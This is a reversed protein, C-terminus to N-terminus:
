PEATARAGTQGRPDEVKLLGAFGAGSFVLGAAFTVPYGFSESLWGGAISFLYFPALWANMIGLYMPRDPEPASEAAYNFRTIMEAGFTVGVFVFVLYFFFPDQAFLACASAGIMSSACVLLVAKTGKRDSLWGLTGAGIVQSAVVIMTAIGVFSDALSFHQLAYVMFFGAPMLGITSLASAALFRRFRRDRRVITRVRDFLKHLPAREALSSPRLEITKRLVMWSAFQYIFALLFIAAFNLPFAVLALLGTLLLSNLFGLAAGVSSRIGMLKGRRTPAVTKAVFDYWVPASLGAIAQNLAYVLFFLVLTLAQHGAGLWAVVVALILIQIRQVLGTGIMWPKRYELQTAYNAAFVQPLFYFAYVVFPIAGVVLDSGGLNKVLAPYVTQPNLLALTAVYLTGEIFHYTFNKRQIPEPDLM